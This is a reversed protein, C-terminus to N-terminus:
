DKCIGRSNPPQQHPLATNQASTTHTALFSPMTISGAIAASSNMPMTHPAFSMMHTPKIPHQQLNGLSHHHRIASESGLARTHSSPTTVIRSPFLCIGHQAIQQSPDTHAPELCNSFVGLNKQSCVQVASFMPMSFAAGNSHTPNLNSPASFPAAPAPIIYPSVSELNITQTGHPAQWVSHGAAASEPTATLPPPPPFQLRQTMSPTANSPLWTYYTGNSDKNQRINTSDTDGAIKVSKGDSGAGYVTHNQNMMPVSSGGSVIYGPGSLVRSGPLQPTSMPMPLGSWLYPQPPLILGLGANFTPAPSPFSLMPFTVGGTQHPLYYGPMVMPVNPAQPMNSNAKIVAANPISVSTSASAHLSKGPMQMYSSSTHTTKTSTITSYQTQQKYVGTDLPIVSIPKGTSAHAVAEPQILMSPNKHLGQTSSSLPSITQTIGKLGSSFASARALFMPDTTKVAETKESNYSASHSLHTLTANMHKTNGTSHLCGFSDIPREGTASTQTTKKSDVIVVCGRSNTKESELPEGVKREHRIGPSGDDDGCSSCSSRCNKSRGYSGHDRNRDEESDLIDLTRHPNKKIRLNGHFQNSFHSLTSHQQDSPFLSPFSLGKYNSFSSRDHTDEMDYHVPGDCHKDEEGAERGGEDREVVNLFSVPLSNLQSPHQRNRNRHLGRKRKSLKMNPIATTTSEKCTSTDQNTNVTDGRDGMNVGDDGHCSGLYSEEDSSNNANEKSVDCLVDGGDEGYFESISHSEDSGVEDCSTSQISADGGVNEEDQGNERPGGKCCHSAKLVSASDFCSHPLKLNTIAISTTQQEVPGHHRISPQKAAASMYEHLKKRRKFNAQTRKEKKDGCLGRHQQQQHVEVGEEVREASRVMSINNAEKGESKPKGSEEDGGVDASGSATQTFNPSYVHSVLPHRFMDGAQGNATLVKVGHVHLIHQILKRELPFAAKCEPWGCAYPLASHMSVAHRVLGTRDTYAKSCLNCKYPRNGTHQRMHRKLHSTCRFRSNCYSCLHPREDTHILMHRVLPQRATFRKSCGPWHCAYERKGEHLRLHARLSRLSNFRNHTQTQFQIQPRSNLKTHTLHSLIFAVYEYKDLSHRSPFNCRILLFYTSIYLLQCTPFLFVSM